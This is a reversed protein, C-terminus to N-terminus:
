YPEDWMWACHLTGGIQMDGETGREKSELAGIKNEQSGAPANADRRFRSASVLSSENYAKYQINKKNKDFTIEVYFSGLFMMTTDRAGMSQYFAETGYGITAVHKQLKNEKVLERAYESIPVMNPHVKLRQTTWAKDKFKLPDEKSTFKKQPGLEYFWFRALDLWTMKDTSTAELSTKTSNDDVKVGPSLKSAEMIRRKGLMANVKKLLMPDRKFLPFIKGELFNHVREAEAIVIEKLTTKLTAIEDVGQPVNKKGTPSKIPVTKVAPTAVKGPANTPTALGGKKLLDGIPTQKKFNDSANSINIANEPIPTKFKEWAEFVKDLLTGTIFPHSPKDAFLLDFMADALDLLGSLENVMGNPDKESEAMFWLIQDYKLMLFDTVDNDVQLQFKEKDGIMAKLQSLGWEKVASKDIPNPNDGTPKRLYKRAKDGGTFIDKAFNEAEHLGFKIVEEGGQIRAVLDAIAILRSVPIFAALRVLIYHQNKVHSDGVNYFLTDLLGEKSLRMSVSTFALDDNTEFLKQMLYLASTVNADSVWIGSLLAKVKNYYNDMESSMLFHTKKKVVQSNAILFASRIYGDVTETESKRRVKTWGNSLKELIEVDDSLHLDHLLDSAGIKTEDPQKYFTVVPYIIRAKEYDKITICVHPGSSGKQHNVNFERFRKKSMIWVKYNGSSQNPNFSLTYKQRYTGTLNYDAYISKNTLVDEMGVSTIEDGPELEVNMDGVGDYRDIEPKRQIERQLGGKQQQTHVLEHALLEKGENSTPNYNGQKFYIDSGHTFAKASISESMEHAQTDTHIKVDSLDAGMKGGLDKQVNEPLNQGSGKTNQIGTEVNSPATMGNGNGGDGMKMVKEDHMKHVKKKEDEDHMKHVKKREDEDHMKHVKKKEDEDHMKYVRVPESAM